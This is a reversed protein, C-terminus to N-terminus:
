APGLLSFTVLNKVTNDSIITELHFAIPSSLSMIKHQNFFTFTLLEIRMFFTFALFGLVKPVKYTVRKEALVNKPTNKVIALKAYKSDTYFEVNTFYQVM